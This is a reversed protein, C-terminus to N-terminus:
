KESDRWRGLADLMGSESQEAAEETVSFGADRIAQSTVKGISFIKCRKNKEEVSFFGISRPLFLRRALLFDMFRAELM